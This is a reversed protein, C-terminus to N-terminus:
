RAPRKAAPKADQEREAEMQARVQAQVQGITEVAQQVSRVVQPRKWGASEQELIARLAEVDHMTAAQTIADMEESSVPPAVQEVRSFGEFTSGYLRHDMLWANLEAADFKRGTETLVHGSLPIRLIGDRFAVTVGPDEGVKRGGVGYRPEISTHVLRLNSRAAVYLVERQPQSM